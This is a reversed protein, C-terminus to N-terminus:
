LSKLKYQFEKIPQEWRHVRREEEEYVIIYVTNKVRKKLTEMSTNYLDILTDMEKMKTKWIVLGKLRHAEQSEKLEGKAMAKLSPIHDKTYPELEMFSERVATIFANMRQYIEHKVYNRKERQQLTKKWQEETIEKKLYQVNLSLNETHNAVVRFRPMEIHEMHNLVREMKLLRYNEKLHTERVDTIQFLFRAIEFLDMRVVGCHIGNVVGTNTRGTQAMWEFYHPNHVQGGTVRGTAWDFGTKCVTCFMQNCGHIRYINAACKPCSRCEKKIAAVTKVTDPNCTHEEDERSRKVVHCSPCVYTECVGCKYAQSLLGRCDAVPCPMVFERRPEEAKKKEVPIVPNEASPTDYLTLIEEVTQREQNGNRLQSANNILLANMTRYRHLESELAKIKQSINTSETEYPKARNHREVVIQAEPLQSKERDFLINERHKKYENTMWTAPINSELFDRSWGKKCDLCHPDQFSQLLYTKLCEVCVQTQCYPCQIPKRVAKTFGSMCVACTDEM